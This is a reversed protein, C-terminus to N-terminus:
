GQRAVIDFIVKLRNRIRVTGHFASTAKINFDSRKVAFEGRARLTQGDVTVEAPIVVHRTVGHLTLDGGLKVKFVGGRVDAKVDTSKFTIEPYKDPELVIDHLEGNIIKKQQETFVDRTEALAAARVVLTLSAPSVSGPTLRAEGTFDRAAVFHDHGKYWLVGGAFARVIFKSRSADLRYVVEPARHPLSDGSGTKSVSSTTKKASGGNKTAGAASPALAAALVILASLKLLRM